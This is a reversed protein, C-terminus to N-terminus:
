RSRAVAVTVIAILLSLLAVALVVSAATENWLYHQGPDVAYVAAALGPGITAVAVSGVPGTRRVTGAALLGSVVLVAITVPLMFPLHYDLDGLHPLARIPSRLADLGNLGLPEVMGAYVVTRPVSLTFALAATWLLAVYAALGNGIAPTAAVALGAVVGVLTGAVTGSVVEARVAGSQEAVLPIVAASGLGAALVGALRVRTGVAHGAGAIMVALPGAVAWYWTVLTIQVGQIREDGATFDADLTTIGTLEALGIQM